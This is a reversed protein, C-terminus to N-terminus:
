GVHRQHFLRRTSAVNTVRPAALRFLRRVPRAVMWTALEISCVRFTNYSDEGYRDSQSPPWPAPYLGHPPRGVCSSCRRRVSDPQWHSCLPDWSAEAVPGEEANERQDKLIGGSRAFNIAPEINSQEYLVGLVGLWPLPRLALGSDRTGVGDQPARSFARALARGNKRPLNWMRM